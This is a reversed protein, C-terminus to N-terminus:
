AIVDVNQGVPSNLPEFTSIPKDTNPNPYSVAHPALHQDFSVEKVQSAIVQKDPFFPSFTFVPMGTVIDPYPAQKVTGNPGDSVEKVQNAMYQKQKEDLANWEEAHRGLSYATMPRSAFRELSAPLSSIMSM